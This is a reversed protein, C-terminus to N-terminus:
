PADGQVFYKRHIDEISGRQKPSLRGRYKNCGRIFEARGSPLEDIIGLLDSLMEDHLPKAKKEPEPTQRPPERAERPDHLVDRWTLSAQRLEAEAIAAATAREGAHESGLMGCVNVFRQFNFKEM